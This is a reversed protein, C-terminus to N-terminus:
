QDARAGPEVVRATVIMLTQAPGSKSDTKVGQAAVAQGPAVSLKTKLDATIFEAARITAGDEDKGLVVGDEPVRVRADHVDLDMQVAQDSAVRVTLAVTAGTNRYVITKSVRGAATVNVGAVLPKMEGVLASTPLGEVAALQIRKLGGIQGKTRLAEVKALVDRAPGTFQREDLPKVAPGPKGGEGGKLVVDAILVEVSVLQPRRDLQGLLKIVEAVAPPAARILLCNGSDPLVQVEAEGKFHKALAAALDKASGHKVFYVARREKGAADGGKAPGRAEDGAPRGGEQGRGACLGICSVIVLCIAMRGVTMRPM